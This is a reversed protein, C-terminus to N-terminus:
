NLRESGASKASHQMPDYDPAAQVGCLVDHLWPTDAFLPSMSAFMKNRHQELSALVSAALTEDLLRLAVLQQIHLKLTNFCLFTGTLAGTNENNVAM